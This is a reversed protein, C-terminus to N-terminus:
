SPPYLIAYGYFPHPAQPHMKFRSQERRGGTMGAGSVLCQTSGNELIEEDLNSVESCISVGFSASKPKAPSKYRKDTFKSMLYM